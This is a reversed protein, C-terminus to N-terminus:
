DITVVEGDSKTILRRMNEVTTSKKLSRVTGDGLGINTRGGVFLLLDRPDAKPDFEMDDPKMWPVATKATAIMITNSFGDTIEAFKVGKVLDFMADKGRFVQIHTNKDGPKTTGVVAFVSPMPNDDFVKKNHVSDWPEDLKIMQYLYGQEVYPLMQVRWSLLPKGKKGVVAASPLTGNVDHYAHLAIGIQKMNNITRANAPGTGMAGNIQAILPEIDLDSRMALTASAEKDNSQIKASRLAIQAGKLITVWKLQTENKADDYEAVMGKLVTQLQTRVVGMSKEAEICKVKTPCRALINLVLEDGIDLKGVIGDAFLLPKFPELEAPGNEMRLTNPFNAFNLGFASHQGSAALAIADSIPGKVGAPQPKALDFAKAGLIVLRNPNDMILRLNDTQGPSFDYIGPQIEKFGKENFQLLLRIASAVKKPEYPKNFTFAAVFAKENGSEKIKATFITFTQVTEPPISLANAIDQFKDFIKEPNLKRFALLPKSKWVTAVDVHGFAAADPPVWSLVEQLPTEAARSATAFWALVAVAMLRRVTVVFMIAVRASVSTGLGMLIRREVTLTEYEGV